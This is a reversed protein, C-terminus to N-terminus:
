SVKREYGQWERDRLRAKITKGTATKPLQRFEVEAPAKFGAHNDRCFDIIEGASPTRGEKAVVFAKPVEGWIPDPASVVAVELVDPHRGIVEEIEVSSIIDGGRVIIDSARDM